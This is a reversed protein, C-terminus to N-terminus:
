RQIHRYPDTRWSVYHERLVSGLVIALGIFVAGEALKLWLHEPSVLWAYLGWAVWMTAGALFLTWGLSRGLRRRVDPWVTVRPLRTDLEGRLEATLLRYVALERACETCGRVHTEVRSAEETALEGDLLRMLDEHAVPHLASM